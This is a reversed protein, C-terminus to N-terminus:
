LYVMYEQLIDESRGSEILKYAIQLAFTFYNTVNKLKWYFEFQKIRFNVPIIM